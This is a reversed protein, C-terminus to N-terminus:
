FPQQPTPRSVQDEPVCKEFGKMVYPDETYDVPLCKRVNMKHMSYSFLTLILITAPVVYKMVWDPVPPRRKPM